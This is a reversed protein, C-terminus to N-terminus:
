NSSLKETQTPTPIPKVTRIGIMIPHSYKGFLLPNTLPKIYEPNPNPDNKNEYTATQITFGSSSTGVTSTSPPLINGNSEFYAKHVGPINCIRDSIHVTMVIIERKRM